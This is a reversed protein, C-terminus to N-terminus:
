NYTRHYHFLVLCALHNLLHIRLRTLQKTSTCLQHLHHALVVVLPHLFLLESLLERPEALLLVANMRLLLQGVEEGLFLAEAVGVVLDLVLEYEYRVVCLVLGNEDELAVLAEGISESKYIHQEVKL